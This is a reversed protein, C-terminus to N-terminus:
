DFIMNLNNDHLKIVFNFINICCNISEVDVSVSCMMLTTLTSHQRNRMVAAGTTVIPRRENITIKLINEGNVDTKRTALSKKTHKSILTLNRSVPNRLLDNSMNQIYVVM